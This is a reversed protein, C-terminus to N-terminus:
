RRMELVDELMKDWSDMEARRTFAEPPIRRSKFCVRNVSLWLVLRSDPNCLALADCDNRNLIRKSSSGKGCNFHHVRKRGPLAKSVSATKVEVRIFYDAQWVLLDVGDQPCHSVSWGQSLASAAALFEGMLGTATESM